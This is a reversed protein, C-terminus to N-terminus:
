VEVRARLLVGGEFHGSTYCLLVLLLNALANAYTSEVVAAKGAREKPGELRIRGPYEFISYESVCVRVRAACAVGCVVVSADVVTAVIVVSYSGLGGGDTRKHHMRVGGGLLHRGNERVRIPGGGVGRARREPERLNAFTGFAGRAGRQGIIIRRRADDIRHTTRGIAGQKAREHARRGIAAAGRRARQTLLPEGVHQGGIEGVQGAKGFGNRGMLRGVLWRRMKM